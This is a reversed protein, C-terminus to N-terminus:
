LASKYKGLEKPVSLLTTDVNRVAYIALLVNLGPHIM